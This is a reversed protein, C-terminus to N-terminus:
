REGRGSSNKLAVGCRTTPGNLAMFPQAGKVMPCDAEHLLLLQPDTNDWGRRHADGELRILLRAMEQDDVPNSTGGRATPDLLQGRQSAEFMEELTSM